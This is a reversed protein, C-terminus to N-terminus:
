GSACPVAREANLSLGRQEIKRMLSGNSRVRIFGRFREAQKDREKFAFWIVNLM